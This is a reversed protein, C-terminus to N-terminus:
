NSVVENLVKPTGEKDYSMKMPYILLIMGEHMECPFIM